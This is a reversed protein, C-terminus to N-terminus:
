MACDLCKDVLSLDCWPNPRARQDVKAAAQLKQACVVATLRISTFVCKASDSVKNIEQQLKTAPLETGVAFRALSYLTETFHIKQEGDIDRLSLTNVRKM